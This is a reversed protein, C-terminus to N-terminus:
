LNMRLIWMQHQGDRTLFVFGSELSRAHVEDRTPTRSPSSAVHVVLAWSWQESAALCPGKMGSPDSLSIIFM